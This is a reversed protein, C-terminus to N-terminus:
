GTVLARAWRAPDRPAPVGLARLPGVEGRLEPPDASRFRGPEVRVAPLSGGNMWSLWQDLRHAEGSCLNVTSGPQAAAAIQVLGEVADAVHLFDRRLSLDGVPIPLAGSRLARSWDALAYGPGQGRGAIHFPRVVVADPHRRAEDEGQAKTSAYAGQPRLPHDVAIPLTSPNGYVHVTSVHVFRGGGALAEVLARTGGVHLAFAGEPDAACAAPASMAALHFVVDPPDREMMRELGAPQRLDVVLDHEGGRGLRSVRQGRAELAAVLHRGVFGGAGTVLVHPM